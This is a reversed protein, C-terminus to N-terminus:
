ISSIEFSNESAALLIFQHFHTSTIFRKAYDKFFIQLNLKTLLTTPLTTRLILKKISIVRGFNWRRILTAEIDFIVTWIVKIRRQFHLLIRFRIKLMACCQCLTPTWRQFLTLDVNSLTLAVTKWCQMIDNWRQKLRLIVNDRGQTLTVEVDYLAIYFGFRALSFYPNILLFEIESTQFTRFIGRVCFSLM